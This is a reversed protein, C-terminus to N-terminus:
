GNQSQDQEQAALRKKEAKEALSIARKVLLRGAMDVFPLKRKEAEERLWGVIMEINDKCWQVGKEDMIQARKNCSCTPSAKIGIKSLMKKLETGPGANFGPVRAPTKMQLKQADTEGAMMLLYQHTAISAREKLLEPSVTKLRPYAPHDTDVWLLRNDQKVICPLAEALTYGREQCREYLHRLYCKVIM